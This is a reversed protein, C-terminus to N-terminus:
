TLGGFPACYSQVLDTRTIFGIPRGDTDVIPLRNIEKEVFLSSIANVTIDPAATVPPASMIDAVTHNRLTMAMCGKNVLCHAVIHMFTTSKGVGMRALFDKESLVGVVIGQENIVPAGTFCKEALFQAAEVLDMDSRLCHVTKSMIEQATRAETIRRLAHIYAIRFVEKFDGPTIDIYGDMEKMAAIVDADSLDVTTCCAINSHTM